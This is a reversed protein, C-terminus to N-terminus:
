FASFIMRFGNKLYMRKWITKREENRFCKRKWKKLNYSYIKMFLFM